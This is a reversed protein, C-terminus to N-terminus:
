KERVLARIHAKIDIERQKDKLKNYEDKEHKTGTWLPVAEHLVALANGIPTLNDWDKPDIYIPKIKTELEKLRREEIPSM